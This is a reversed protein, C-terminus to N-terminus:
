GTTGVSFSKVSLSQLVTYSCNLVKVLVLEKSLLEALHQQDAASTPSLFRHKSRLQKLAFGPTPKM